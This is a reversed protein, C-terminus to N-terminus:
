SYGSERNLGKATRKFLPLRRSDARVEVLYDLFKLRSVDAAVFDLNKLPSNPNFSCLDNSLNQRIRGPVCARCIMTHTGDTPQNTVRLNKDQAKADKRSQTSFSASIRRVPSKACTYRAQGLRLTHFPPLVFSSTQSCGKCEHGSRSPWGRDPIPGGTGPEAVNTLGSRMFHRFVQLQRAHGHGPVAV